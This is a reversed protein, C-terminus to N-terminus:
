ESRSWAQAHRGHLNTAFSAGTLDEALGVAGSEVTDVMTPPRVVIRSGEAM